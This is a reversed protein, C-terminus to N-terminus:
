ANENCKENHEVNRYMIPPSRNTADVNLVHMGARGHGQMLAAHLRHAALYRGQYARLSTHEAAADLQVKGDKTVEKVWAEAEKQQVAVGIKAFIKM